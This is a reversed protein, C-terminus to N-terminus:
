NVENLGADSDDTIVSGSGPSFNPQEKEPYEYGTNDILGLYLSYSNAYHVLRLSEDVDTEITVSALGGGTDKTITLVRMNQFALLTSYKGGPDNGTVYINVHSGPKMDDTVGNIGNVPITIAIKTPDMSMEVDTGGNATLMSFTLPMGASVDMRLSDGSKLVDGIVDGTIFQSNTDAGSGAVVIKSDAQVPTLLDETVIDGSKAGVKFVYVTTRKPALYSYLAIGGVVASIIAAVLIFVIKKNKTNM